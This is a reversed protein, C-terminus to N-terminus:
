LQHLLFRKGLGWTQSGLMISFLIEAMLAVQQVSIFNRRVEPLVLIRMLLIHMPGEPKEAM